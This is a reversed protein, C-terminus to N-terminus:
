AKWGTSGCLPLIILASDSRYQRKRDRDDQGSQAKAERLGRIGNLISWACFVSIILRLIM